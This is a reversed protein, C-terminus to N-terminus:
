ESAIVMGTPLLDRLDRRPRDIVAPQHRPHDLERRETATRHGQLIFHLALAADGTDSEIASINAFRNRLFARCRPLHALRVPMVQQRTYSRSIGSSGTVTSVYSPASTM